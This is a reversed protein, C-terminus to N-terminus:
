GHCSHSILCPCDRVHLCIYWGNEPKMDFHVLPEFDPLPAASFSRSAVDPQLEYGYELASIGDILCDFM